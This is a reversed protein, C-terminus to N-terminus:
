IWLFVYLINSLYHNHIVVSHHYFFPAINCSIKEASSNQWSTMDNPFCTLTLLTLLAFSHVAVFLTVDHVFHLRGWFIPQKRLYIGMVHMTHHYLVKYWTSGTTHVLIVVFRSLSSNHHPKNVCCALGSVFQQVLVSHIYYFDQVVVSHM